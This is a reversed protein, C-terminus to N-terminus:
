ANEDEALQELIDIPITKNHVVWFKYDPYNHIIELWINNDACGLSARDQEEKIESTRLKLFEEASSIMSESEITALKSPIQLTAANM